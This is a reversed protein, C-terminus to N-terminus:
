GSWRFWAGAGDTHPPFRRAPAGAPTLLPPEDAVPACVAGFPEGRPEGDVKGARLTRVRGSWPRVQEFGPEPAFRGHPWPFGASGVTIVDM